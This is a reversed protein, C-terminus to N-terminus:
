YLVGMQREEKHLLWNCKGLNTCCREDAASLFFIKTSVDSIYSTFCNDYAIGSSEVHRDVAWKKRIIKTGKLFSIVAHECSAGTHTSRTARTMRLQPTAVGLMVNNSFGEAEYIVRWRRM